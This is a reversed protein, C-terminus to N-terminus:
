LYLQECHDAETTAQDMAPIMLREFRGNRLCIGMLMFWADFVM